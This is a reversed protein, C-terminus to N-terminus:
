DTFNFTVHIRFGDKRYIYFDYYACAEPNDNKETYLSAFVGMTTSDDVLSKTSSVLNDLQRPTYDQDDIFCYRVDSKPKSLLYLLLAKSDENTRGYRRGSSCDVGMADKDEERIEKQIAKPNFTKPDFAKVSGSNNGECLALEAVIEATDAPLEQALAIHTWLGLALLSYISARM